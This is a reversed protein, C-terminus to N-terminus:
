PVTVVRPKFKESWKFTWLDALAVREAHGDLFVVNVAMDHRDICYSGLQSDTEAPHKLNKPVQHGEEASVMPDCCDGLLPVREGERPPFRIYAWGNPPAPRPHRPVWMNFGYSGRWDGRLIWQPGAVQYTPVRWAHGASGLQATRRVGDGPWPSDDPPEAAEPCMLAGRVDSGSSALLEWWRLTSLDEATWLPISHGGSSSLYVQFSQGWQHLNALCATSRGAKRVRGLVPILIAILVAIIGIVVLLELLSFGVVRRQKCHM